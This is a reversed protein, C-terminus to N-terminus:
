RGAGSAEEGDGPAATGKNELERIRTRLATHEALAKTRAVCQWCDTGVHQHRTAYDVWSDGTPPTDSEALKRLRVRRCRQCMLGDCRGPHLEGM